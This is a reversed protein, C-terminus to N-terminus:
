RQDAEELRLKRAVVERALGVLSRNDAYARARLVAVADAIPIGLQVMVMGSAQHVESYDETHELGVAAEGAPARSQGDLLLVVAADAFALADSLAERELAGARNSSLELVGLRAAGVQMPFAFVAQLGHDHAVQAYAPWRALGGDAIDPVLVPHRWKFSDVAPGEGLIFQLGALPKSMAAGAAAVVQTSEGATVSAAAGTVPLTRLAVTCLGNLLASVGADKRKLEPERAVLALVRAVRDAVSGFYAADLGSAAAVDLYHRRRIRGAWGSRV